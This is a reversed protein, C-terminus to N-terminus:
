PINKKQRYQTSAFRFQLYINTGADMPPPRHGATLSSSLIYERTKNMEEGIKQWANRKMHQDMYFHSSMNYICEHSRVLHVLKEEDM